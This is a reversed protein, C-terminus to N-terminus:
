QSFVIGSEDLKREPNLAPGDTESSQAAGKVFYYFTLGIGCPM